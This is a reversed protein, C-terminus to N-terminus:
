RGQELYAEIRRTVRAGPERGDRLDFVLRPDGVAKRGFTSPSMRTARLHKEIRRLIMAGGTRSM